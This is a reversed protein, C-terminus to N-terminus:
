GGQGHCQLCTNNSRQEHDAPVPKLGGSGHCTQCDTGETIIHPIRPPGVIRPNMPNHCELCPRGGSHEQFGVQPFSAPKAAQRAHCTLCLDISTNVLMPTGKSVHAIGQGHCDECTVTRHSSHLWEEGVSQHCQRCREAGVYVVPQGMTRTITAEQYLTRTGTPLNPAILNNLLWWGGLFVAIVGLVVGLIILPSLVSRKM